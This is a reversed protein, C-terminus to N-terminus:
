ADTSEEESKDFSPLNITRLIALAGEIKGQDLAWAHVAKRGEVKDLAVDEHWESANNLLWLAMLMSGEFGVESMAEM